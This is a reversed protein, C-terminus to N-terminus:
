KGLPRAEGIIRLGQADDAVARVLWGTCGRGKESMGRAILFGGDGQGVIGLSADFNWRGVLAFNADVKLLVQPKGYCGFWWHNDAFAATQIGMLTYGSPLTTRKLFTFSKDYEYLYNEKVDVTLGGVVLFKGDHTAIGGAGHVVEPTKYRKLEK